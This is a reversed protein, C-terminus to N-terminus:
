EGCGGCDGSCQECVKPSYERLKLAEACRRRYEEVAGERREPKCYMGHVTQGDRTLWHVAYEGADTKSLQAGNMHHDDGTWTCQALQKM